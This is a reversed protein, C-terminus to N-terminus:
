TDDAVDVQPMMSLVNAPFPGDARWCVQGYRDNQGEHRLRKVGTFLETATGHDTGWTREIIEDLNDFDRGFKLGLTDLLWFGVRNVRKKKGQSSGDPSGGEFPMSQGDSNYCYGLTVV